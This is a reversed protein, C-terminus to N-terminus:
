STKANSTEVRTEAAIADKFDVAVVDGFKANIEELTLNKTEPFYVAIIATSVITVCVFVLYYMWGINKLALNVPASYALANGFFSAFALTSGESRLHTPWIESGYAYSTCEITSTFAFGFIFYLAVLANIGPEYTTALYYKVLATMIALIAANTIGGIVLLRVRGVRDIIAVNLLCGLIAVVTWACGLGLQLTPNFGLGGMLVPILNAIATIGTGQGMVWLLISCFARKRLAPTKFIYIYGKPLNKEAEVQAKIQTAEARALTGDPDSKTSHLRELEARAQEERGNEMLWRPSEPLFYLSCAFGVAAVTLVVFTLRWQVPHDVFSFILGCLSCVIYATVIGVGQLGVLLGRTHPPAVESMYVPSNAMVMGAGIGCLVRAVLLMAIHYSACQLVGAVVAILAAVLNAQKRGWGNSIPAQVICGVFAGGLFSALLGDMRATADETTLFMAIFSTQALTGSMANASFGYLFGGMAATVCVQIVRKSTGGNHVKIEDGHSSTVSGPGSQPKSKEEPDM